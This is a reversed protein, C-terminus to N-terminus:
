ERARGALSVQALRLLGALGVVLVLAGVALLGYGVLTGAEIDMVWEAAASVAGPTATLTMGALSLAAFVLGWVIAAWRTRPREAVPQPRSPEDQAAPEDARRDLIQTGEGVGPDTGPDTSGDASHAAAPTPETPTQAAAPTPETHTQAAAPTPETPSQETPTQGSPTQERPTQESAPTQESM